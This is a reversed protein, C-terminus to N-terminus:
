QPPVLPASAGPRLHAPDWPPRAFVERVMPAFFELPLTAYDPDFSAQDWRECFAVAADFHPSGRYKERADPDGGVHHAYYVLQFVGHHQIVWSVEDRV